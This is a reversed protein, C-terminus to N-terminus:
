DRPSPSTYLLCGMTTCLNVQARAPNGRTNGRYNGRGGRGRPCNRAIHGPANCVYCRRGTPSGGGRGHHAIPSGYPAQSSEIDGAYESLQSDVNVTTANTVAPRNDVPRSSNGSLRNNLHIDAM